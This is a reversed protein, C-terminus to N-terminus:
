EFLAIVAFLPVNIKLMEQSLSPYSNKGDVGVEFIIWISCCIMGRHRQGRITTAVKWLIQIFFLSM